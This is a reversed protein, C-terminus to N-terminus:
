EYSDTKCSESSSMKMETDVKNTSQSMPKSAEKTQVSSTSCSFFLVPIFLLIIKMGRYKRM